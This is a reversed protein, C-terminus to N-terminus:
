HAGNTTSAPPLSAVIRTWTDKHVAKKPIITGLSGVTGRARQAGHDLHELDVYEDGDTLRFEAEANSVRATEEDSLMKIIRERDTIKTESKSM